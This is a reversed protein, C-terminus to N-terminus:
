FQFPLLFFYRIVDNHSSHNLSSYIGIVNYKNTYPLNIKSWLISTVFVSLVILLFIFINEKYKYHSM